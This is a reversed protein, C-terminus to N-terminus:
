RVGGLATASVTIAGDGATCTVAAGTDRTGTDRCGFPGAWWSEAALLVPTSDDWEVAVDDVRSAGDSELVAAADADASRCALEGAAVRCAVSGDALRFGAAAPEGAAGGTNAFSTVGALGAAVASAASVVALRATWPAAFVGGRSMCLHLPPVAAM